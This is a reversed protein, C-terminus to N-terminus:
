SSGRLAMSQQHFVETMRELFSAIVRLEAATYDSHMVRVANRLNTIIENVKNWDDTIPQVLVKRRDQPDRIRRAYGARELRDVVGTVSGASLGSLEALQGATVPKGARIALDLCKYDTVSLGLCDAVQSHFMVVAAGLARGLDAMRPADAPEHQASDSPESNSV